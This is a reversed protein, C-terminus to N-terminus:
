VIKCEFTIFWGDEAFVFKPTRAEEHPIQIFPSGIMYRDSIALHTALWNDRQGFDFECFGIGDNFSFPHTECSCNRIMGLSDDFRSRVLEELKTIIRSRLLIGNQRFPDDYNGIWSLKM